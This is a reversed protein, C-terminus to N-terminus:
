TPADMVTTERGGVSLSRSAERARGLEMKWLGLELNLITAAETKYRQYWMSLYNVFCDLSRESVAGEKLSFQHMAVVTQDIADM